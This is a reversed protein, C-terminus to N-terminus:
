FWMRDKVNGFRCFKCIYMLSVACSRPHAVIYAVLLACCNENISRKISRNSDATCTEPSLSARRWSCKQNYICSQYLAGINSGVPSLTSIASLEMEVPRCCYRHMTHVLVTCVTLLAGSSPRTQRGFCTSCIWTSWYLSCSVFITADQQNSVDNIYTLQPQRGYKRWYEFKNTGRAPGIVLLNGSWTEWQVCLCHVCGRM